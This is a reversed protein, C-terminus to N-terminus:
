KPFFNGPTECNWDDSKLSLYSVGRLAPLRQSFASEAEFPGPKAVLSDM